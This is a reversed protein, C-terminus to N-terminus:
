PLGTMLATQFRAFCIVVSSSKLKVARHVKRGKLGLAVLLSNQLQACALSESNRTYFSCDYKEVM